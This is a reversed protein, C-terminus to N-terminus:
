GLLANLQALLTALLGGGPGDLLGTIACLLNGVLKGDGTLGTVDLHVPALDVVLGLLDLHLPGLDLNLIDCSAPAFFGLDQTEFSQSVPTGDATGVLNGTGLLRGGEAAVETITLTGTFDGGDALTGTVPIATLPSDEPAAEATGAPAFAVFLAAAVLPTIWRILRM